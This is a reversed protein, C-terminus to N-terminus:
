DCSGKHEEFYQEVFSILKTGDKFDKGKIINAIYDDGSQNVIRHEEDMDVQYSYTNNDISCSMYASTTLRQKTSKSQTSFLFISIINIIIFVVFLVGIFKLIKILIGALKETNSVKEVIVDRIDNGVLEDLSIHFLQSLEKAQALDPSTIDNEWNSITQRSVNLKEAVDEQSYHANKRLKLLKEGTNMNVVEM